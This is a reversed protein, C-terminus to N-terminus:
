GAKLAERCSGCAKFGCGPCMLVFLPLTHDCIGCRQKGEVRIWYREHACTAPTHAYHFDDTPPNNKGWNKGRAHAYKGKPASSVAPGRRSSSDFQARRSRSPIPIPAAKSLAPFATAYAKEADACAKPKALKEQLAERLEAERKEADRATQSSAPAPSPIPANPKPPFANPNTQIKEADARAQAKALKQRLKERLEAERKEADRAAKKEAAIKAETEAESAKRKREEAAQRQAERAQADTRQRAARESAERASAARERQERERTEREKAQRHKLLLEAREDERQRLNSRAQSLKRSRDAQQRIEEQRRLMKQEATEVPIATTGLSTIYPWWGQKQNEEALRERELRDWASIAAAIIEIDKKLRTIHEAALREKEAWEREEKERRM